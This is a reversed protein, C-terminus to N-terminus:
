FALPIDGDPFRSPAFFWTIMLDRHPARLARTGTRHVTLEDFLLVDGARLAPEVFPRGALLETVTTKMTPDSRLGREPSIVHDVRRPVFGISPGEHGGDDLATWVSLAACIGYFQGDQHWGIGSDEHSVRRVVIRQASAVPPEELYDRVVRILGSSEYASAVGAVMADIEAPAPLVVRLSDPHLHARVRRVTGEDLVGRVVLSGHHHLASAVCTASLDRGYVEPVGREQPFLDGVHKAPAGSRDAAAVRAAGIAAREEVSAEIPVSVALAGNGVEHEPETARERNRRFSWRVEAGNQRGQYTQYM